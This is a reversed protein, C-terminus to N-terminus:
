SVKAHFESLQKCSYKYCTNKYRLKKKVDYKKQLKYFLSTYSHLHIYITSVGFCVSMHMTSYIESEINAFFFHWKRLKPYYLNTLTFM